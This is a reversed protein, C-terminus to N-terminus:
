APGGLNNHWTSTVAIVLTLNGAADLAHSLNGIMEAFRQPLEPSWGTSGPSQENDVFLGNWGERHCMDVASDLVGPREWARTLLWQLDFVGSPIFTLGMRKFQRLEERRMAAWQPSAAGSVSQNVPALGSCRNSSYFTANGPNTEWCASDQFYGTLASLHARGWASNNLGDASDNREPNGSFWNVRRRSPQHAPLPSATMTPTSPLVADDGKLRAGQEGSLLARVISSSWVFWCVQEGNGPDNEYVGGPGAVPWGPEGAIPRNIRYESYTYVEAFLYKGAFPVTPKNASVRFANTWQGVWRQMAVVRQWDGRHAAWVLEWGFGKGIVAEDVQLLGSPVDVKQKKINKVFPIGHTSSNVHTLAVEAGAVVSADQCAAASNNGPTCTHTGNLKEWVFFGLRRYALVTADMREADLSTPGGPDHRTSLSIQYAPIPSLNVWSMGWIFEDSPSIGGPGLPRLEAYIPEDTTDGPVVHALSTNLGRQILSRYKAFLAASQRDNARASARGMLRLAEEAFANSILDYDSWYHYDRSHELAPNWILNLSTNFFPTQAAGAKLWTRISSDPPLASLDRASRAEYRGFSWNTNTALTVGGCGAVVASSCCYAIADHLTNPYPLPGDSVGPAYGRLFGSVNAAASPAFRGASCTDNTDQSWTPFPVLYRKTWKVVMSYYDSFLHTKEPHLFCFRAWTLILHFSGDTQEIMGLNCKALDTSNLPTCGITHSPYPAKKLKHLELILRLIREALDDRGMELFAATAAGITRTFEAAGYEGAFPSEGFFGNGKTRQVLSEATDNYV